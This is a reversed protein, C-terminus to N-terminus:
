KLIKVMSRMAMSKSGLNGDKFTDSKSFRRRNEKRAAIYLRVTFFKTLLKEKLKHCNPVQCASIIESSLNLLRSTLRPGTLKGSSEFMRFLTEADRLLTFASESCYTLCGSRFEKLRTIANLSGSSTGRNPDEALTTCVECLTGRKKVSFLCYGALHYLSSEQAKNLPTEESIDPFHGSIAEDDDDNASFRIPELFDALFQRDDEFYSASSPCKMYQAISIMKLAQRFQAADPTPNNTRVCSFLNELCDQTLRATLLFTHGRDLYEQQLELITTTSIVVGAQWPKWSKGCKIDTFVSVAEKLHVIAGSYALPNKNSLATVPHRSSALDFWRDVFDIFWATTLLGRDYDEHEVLYRLGVSVSRSFVNLASSVKMKDFHTENVKESSINPTIKLDDSLQFEVLTRVAALSVTDTPLQHKQVISDSLIFEHGNVLAAKINKILHPVDFMFFLHRGAACPHPIKNVTVSLKSCVIGFTKQLARNASGMDSTITSVHVGIEHAKRIIELVIDRMKSGDTSNGTFHYCVTQKWRTTIGALMFVLAHTATGSHGPLTVDGRFCSSSTDYQYGAKISMEDLTLCCEREKEDLAEVKLKLLRFTEDLIGPEMSVVEMKRRLSRLSPLPHGQNLLEAYGTTGCAFRLKLAKKYTENTWKHSHPSVRSMNVLQDETFLKKVRRKLTAKSARAERKMMQLKKNLNEVQQELRHIRESPDAMANLITDMKPVVNEAAGVESFRQESDNEVATADHEAVPLSTSPYSHDDLHRKGLPPGGCGAPAARKRTARQPQTPKPLHDFINPVADSKLRKDDRKLERQSDDFHKQFILCTYIFM